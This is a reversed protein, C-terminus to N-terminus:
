SNLTPNNKSQHSKKSRALVTPPSIAFGETSRYPRHARIGIQTGRAKCRATNPAKRMVSMTSISRVHASAPALDIAAAPASAVDGAADVSGVEDIPEGGCVANCSPPLGDVRGGQVSIDVPFM